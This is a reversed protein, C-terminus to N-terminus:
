AIEEITQTGNMQISAGVKKNLLQQGIPSVISVCFILHNDVEIKGISAGMFYTAINTRVISGNKVLKDKESPKLGKLLERYKSQQALQVSIKNIEHQAMETSTEYKDGASSKTNNTLSDRLQGLDSKLIIIKDEIVTLVQQYAKIKIEFL